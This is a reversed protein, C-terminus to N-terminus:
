RRLLDTGMEKGFIRFLFLASMDEEPIEGIFRSDRSNNVNDGMVFYHGSQIEFPGWEGSIPETWYTPQFKEGNIYSTGDRIELTEGPMGVIRKVTLHEQDASHFAVIDERQWDERPRSDAVAYDGPELTPAMSGSPLYLVRYNMKPSVHESLLESPIANILVNYAVLILLYVWWRDYARKDICQVRKARIAAEGAIALSIVWGLCVILVFGPFGLSFMLAGGALVLLISTGVSFAFYRAAKGIGDTYLQGLGPLLLSLLFAFWPKRPHINRETRVSKESKTEPNEQSM